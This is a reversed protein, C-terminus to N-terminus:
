LISQHVNLSKSSHISQITCLQQSSARSCCPLLAISSHSIGAINCAETSCHCDSMVGIEPIPAKICSGDRVGLLNAVDDDAYDFSRFDVRRGDTLVIYGQSCFLHRENSVTGSQNFSLM